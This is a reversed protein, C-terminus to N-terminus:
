VPIPDPTKEIIGKVSDSENADALLFARIHIFGESHYFSVAILFESEDLLKQERLYDQISSHADDASPTGKWDGITTVPTLREWITIEALGSFRLIIWDLTM